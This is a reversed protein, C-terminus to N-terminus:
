TATKMISGERVPPTPPLTQKYVFLLGRRIPLLKRWLRIKRQLVHDSALLTHGNPRIYKTVVGRVDAKTCSETGRVNGDGMLTVQEGQLEIIRHLVFHGPHIEALVADGVHLEEFPAIEVKDRLHELFPRMSYGKVSFVAREGAAVYRCIIPLYADNPLERRELTAADADAYKHQKARRFPTALFRAINKILQKLM